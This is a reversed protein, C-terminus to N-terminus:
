SRRARACARLPPFAHGASFHPSDGIVLGAVPHPHAAGIREPVDARREVDAALLADDLAAPDDVNVLTVVRERVEEIAEETLGMGQSAVIEQVIVQVHPEDSLLSVSDNVAQNLTAMTMARSRAERARGIEAWQDVQAEGVEVLRNFGHRVPSLLRSRRLPTLIRFTAQDGARVLTRGARSVRSQGAVALGIAAYRTRSKDSLGFAIEWQSQSLLISAAGAQNDMVESETPAQEDIWSGVADSALLVSGLVLDGPTIKRQAKPTQSEATAGAPGAGAPPNASGKDASPNDISTKADPQGVDPESTSDPASTM